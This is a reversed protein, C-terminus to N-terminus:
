LGPTAAAAAPQDHLPTLGALRAAVPDIGVTQLLARETVASRLAHFEHLVQRIATSSRAPNAAADNGVYMVRGAHTLRGEAREAGDRLFIICQLQQRPDHDPGYSCYENATNEATGSANDAGLVMHMFPKLHEAARVEAASGLRDHAREVTNNFRQLVVSVRRRDNAGYLLTETTDIFPNFESLGLAQATSSHIALLLLSVRRTRTFFAASSVSNLKHHAYDPHCPSFAVGVISISDGHLERVRRASAVATCLHGFHVPAYTGNFFLLVPRRSARLADQMAHEIPLISAAQLARELDHARGSMDPVPAFVDDNAARLIRQLAERHEQVLKIQRIAVDHPCWHGNAAASVQAIKAQVIAPFHLCEAESFSQGSHSLYVRLAAAFEYSWSPSDLGSCRDDVILLWLLDWLKAIPVLIECNILTPTDRLHSVTGASSDGVLLNKSQLDGTGLSKPLADIEAGHDQLIGRLVRVVDADLPPFVRLAEVLRAELRGIWVWVGDSDVKCWDPRASEVPATPSPLVGALSRAMVLRKAVTTRFAASESLPESAPVVRTCVWRHPTTGAPAAADVLEVCCRGDATTKFSQFRAAGPVPPLAMVNAFSRTWFGDLSHSKNILACSAEVSAQSYADCIRKLIWRRGDDSGDAARYGFEHMVRFVSSRDRLNLFRTPDSFGFRAAAALRACLERCREELYKLFEPSGFSDLADSTFAAAAADTRLRLLARSCWNPAADYAVRASLLESHFSEQWGRDGEHYV